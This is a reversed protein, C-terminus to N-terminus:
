TDSPCSCCGRRAETGSFASSHRTKFPAPLAQTARTVPQTPIMYSKLFTKSLSVPKGALQRLSKRSKQRSFPIQRFFYVAICTKVPSDEAFGSFAAKSASFAEVFGGFVSAKTSALCLLFPSRRTLVSHLYEFFVSINQQAFM